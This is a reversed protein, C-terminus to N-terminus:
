PIVKFSTAFVAPNNAWSQRSASGVISNWLWRFSERHDHADLIVGEAKAQEETIDQLRETAVATVELLTRSAWRPLHISPRWFGKVVQVRPDLFPGKKHRKDSFEVENTVFAGDAQYITGGMGRPGRELAFGAAWNERVWLTDGVVWRPEALRRTVTKTGAMMARVMDGNFLIGHEKM